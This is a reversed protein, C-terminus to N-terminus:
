PGPLGGVGVPAITVKAPDSWWSLTVGDQVIRVHGRLFYDKTPTLTPLSIQCSLSHNAVVAGAVHACAGASSETTPETATDNFYHAGVHDSTANDFGSVNLKFTFNTGSGQASTPVDALALTYNRVTIAAPAAWYNLTDNGQGIRAHGYVQWVGTAPFTCNVTFTGPLTAGAHDCAQMASANPAATTNNAFHAGVHDSAQSATGNAFLTLNVRQGPKAQTPLGATALQFSTSDFAPAVPPATPTATPTASPTATPFVPDSTPTAATPTPTPDTEDDTGPMSCGALLGSLALALLLTIARM